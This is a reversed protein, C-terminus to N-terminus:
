GPPRVTPAVRQPGARAPRAVARDAARPNHRRTKPAHVILTRDQVHAWRLGRAEQPRLGAYALLSVFMADRPSLLARIAEVTVPALPRVEQTPPPAARRVFRQQNSAIRGSERARELIGGLLALAKRTSEVPAGGKIRDAQWRGIIESTLDRLSYGGLWPSLHNDYLGTYLEITKPALTAAHVPAWVTEVYEDLTIRGGDIMQLTGTEKADKVKQDFREADRERRFSRSRHRGADDRWRVVHKGSPARQVSM